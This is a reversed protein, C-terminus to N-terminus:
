TGTLREILERSEEWHFKRAFLCGSGVIRDYDAGTLVRPHASKGREWVICRRNGETGGKKETALNERFPSALLLTQLFIEDCCATMRFTKRVWDERELVHGAFGDTISFWQSGYGLPIDKGKLRDVRLAIQLLTLAKDLIRVAPNGVREQLPRYLSARRRQPASAGFQVFERGQHERLVRHLEEMSVIPLDQGSILHYYAYPGQEKAARLLRLEADISSFGGWAVKKRGIVSYGARATRFREPDFDAWKADAHLFIDNGPHDLLRTLLELLEPSGHAMILFAHREM